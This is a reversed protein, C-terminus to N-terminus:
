KLHSTHNLVKVTFKGKENEYEIISYGCPDHEFRGKETIPLGHLGAMIAEMIGGHSFVAITKGPNKNVVEELFGMGRKGIDELRESGEFYPTSGTEEKAKQLEPYKEKVEKRTMGELKGFFRETLSEDIRIDAGPLAIRATELARGLPSSYVADFRISALEDKLANAQEKGNDTLKSDGLQGQIRKQVNWDTEGHRILFITTKM